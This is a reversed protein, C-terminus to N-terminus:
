SPRGIHWRLRAELDRIQRRFSDALAEAAEARVTERYAGDLTAACQQCTTHWNIRHEYDAVDARLRAVEAEAHEAREIAERLPDDSM